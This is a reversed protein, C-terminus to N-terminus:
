KIRRMTPRSTQVMEENPSTGPIARAAVGVGVALAVGVVGVVREIDVRPVVFDTAAPLQILSVAINVCKWTAAAPSIGCTSTSGDATAKV